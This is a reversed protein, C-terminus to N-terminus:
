RQRDLVLDRWETPHVHSRRDGGVEAGPIGVAPAGFRVGGAGVLLMCREARLELAGAGGDLDSRRACGVVRVRDIRVVGDQMVSAPAM